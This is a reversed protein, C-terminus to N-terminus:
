DMVADCAALVGGAALLAIDFSRRCVPTDLDLRFPAQECLARVREVHERAHVREVWEREAPHADIPILLPSLGTAELHSVIATLRSENEPHAYGTDHELYDPHYVFGTM